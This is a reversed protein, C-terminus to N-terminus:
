SRWISSTRVVAGTYPAEVMMGKGIYMGVHHITGPNGPSDAFFVLDGAVLHLSDVSRMGAYAFSTLGSCDFTSPGEAGWVYPSGLQALAVAVAKRAAPSARGDRIPATGATRAASVHDAFAAQQSAEEARREQEIMAAVRRDMTRLEREIDAALREAKARKADLQEAGRAQAVLRDSLRARTRDLKARAQTVKDVLALDAELVARQLPLRALADAPDDAGVLTSMFWGPGAIYSSRAREDLEAQVTTLEKEAAARRRDLGSADALLDVGRAYAEELDEAMVELRRHQDDLKARLRTAKARLSALDGPPAPRAGGGGPRAPGPDPARLSPGPVPVPPGPDAPRALAAPATLTASALMAASLVATALARAPGRVRRGVAPRPRTPPM